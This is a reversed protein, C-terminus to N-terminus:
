YVLSELMKAETARLLESRRSVKHLEDATGQQYVGGGISDLHHFSASM